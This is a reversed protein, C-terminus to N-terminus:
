TAGSIAKALEIENIATYTELSIQVGEHHNLAIM